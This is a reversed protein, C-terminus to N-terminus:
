QSYVDQARALAVCVKKLTSYVSAAFVNAVAYAVATQTGSYVRPIMESLGDYQQLTTAMAEAIVRRHRRYAEELGPPSVQPGARRQREIDRYSVDIANWAALLANKDFSSLNQGRAFTAINVKHRSGEESMWAAAGDFLARRHAAADEREMAATELSELVSHVRTVESKSKVMLMAKSSRKRALPRLSAGVFSTCKKQHPSPRPTAEDASSDGDSAADHGYVAAKEVDVFIQDASPLSMKALSQTRGLEAAPQGKNHRFSKPTFAMPGSLKELKRQLSKVHATCEHLATEFQFSRERLRENQAVLHQVDSAAATTSGQRRWERLQMATEERISAVDAERSALLEKVSRLADDRAALAETLRELDDRLKKNESHAALLDSEASDRAATLEQIRSQAVTMHRELQLAALPSPASSKAPGSSVLPRVVDDELEDADRVRRAARFNALSAVVQQFTPTATLISNDYEARAVRIFYELSSPDSPKGIFIASYHQSMEMAALTEKCGDAFGIVQTRLLAGSSSGLASVRASEAKRQARHAARAKPPIDGIRTALHQSHQAQQQFERQTELRRIDALAFPSAQDINSDLMTIVLDYKEPHQWMAVLSAAQTCEDVVFREKTLLLLSKRREDPKTVALLVRPYKRKQQM